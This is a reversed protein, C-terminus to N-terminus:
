YCSNSSKMNYVRRSGWILSPIRDVRIRDFGVYDGFHAISYSQICGDKSAEPNTRSGESPAGRIFTKERSTRLAARHAPLSRAPNGLHPLEIM